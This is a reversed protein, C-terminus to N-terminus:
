DAEDYKAMADVARGELRAQEAELLALKHAFNEPCGEALTRMRALGIEIHDLRKLRHVITGSALIEQSGCVFPGEKETWPVRDALVSAFKQAIQLLTRALYEQIREVARIRKESEELIFPLPDGAFVRIFLVPHALGM